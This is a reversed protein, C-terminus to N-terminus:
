SIRQSEKLYICTPDTDISSLHLQIVPQTRLIGVFLQMTMRYGIRIHSQRDCRVILIGILDRSQVYMYRAYLARAGREANLRHVEPSSERGSKVLLPEPTYTKTSSRGVATDMFSHGSVFNLIDIPPAARQDRQDVINTKVLGAPGAWGM